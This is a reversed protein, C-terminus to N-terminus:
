RKWTYVVTQRVRNSPTSREVFTQSDLAKFTTTLSGMNGSFFAPAQGSPDMGRRRLGNGVHDFLGTLRLFREREASHSFGAVTRALLQESGSNSQSARL